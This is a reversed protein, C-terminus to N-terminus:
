APPTMSPLDSAPPGMEQRMTSPQSGDPTVSSALSPGDTASTPEGSSV